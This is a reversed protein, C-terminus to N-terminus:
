RKILRLSFMNNNANVSQDVNVSQTYNNFYIYSRKGSNVKRRDFNDIDSTWYFGGNLPKLAPNMDLFVKLEKEPIRESYFGGFEFKMNKTLEKWMFRGFFAMLKNYDNVTPVRWEPFLSEIKEVGNYTYLRNLQGPHRDDVKPLVSDLGMDININQSSWVMNGVKIGKLESQVITATKLSKSIELITHQLNEAQSKSLNEFLTPDRWIWKCELDFIDEEKEHLYVIVDKDVKITRSEILSTHQHKRDVNVIDHNVDIVFDNQGFDGDVFDDVFFDTLVNAVM